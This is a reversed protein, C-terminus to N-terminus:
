KHYIIDDHLAFATLQLYEMCLNLLTCLYTKNHLANLKVVKTNVFIVFKTALMLQMLPHVIFFGVFHFKTEV